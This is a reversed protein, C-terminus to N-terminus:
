AVKILLPFVFFWVVGIAALGLGTLMFFVRRGFLKYIIFGLCGVRTRTGAPEAGIVWRWRLLAGVFVLAGLVIFLVGLTWPNATIFEGM